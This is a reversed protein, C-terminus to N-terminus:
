NSELEISGSTTDILITVGGENYKSEFNDRPHYTRGNIDDEFKGSSSNAIIEFNMDEPVVLDVLGSTTQISSEAEIQNDLELDVSGSVAKIDFYQCVTKSCDIDGSTTECSLYECEIEQTTIEGSVADCIIENSTLQKILIDGSATKASFKTTNGTEFEIEGSAASLIIEDKANSFLIKIDGSASSVSLKDTELDEIFVEGSATNLETTTPFFDTPLYLYVNCIYGANWFKKKKSKIVFADDEVYFEPIMKSYNSAIEILIENGNTTKVTLNEYTLDTSIKSINTTEFYEKAVIDEAVTMTCSAFFLLSLTFIKFIHKM